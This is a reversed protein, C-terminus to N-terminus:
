HRRALDSLRAALRPGWAELSYDDRARHYAAVSMRDWLDDDDLLKQISSTWAGPTDAHLGEVGDRVVAANTTTPTVVCPIGHSMYLVAKLGCKGEALAHDRDVPYIGVRTRALVDDEAAQSWRFVEPQVGDPAQPTAGVVLVQPPPTVDAVAPLVRELFPATSHSGVWGVSRQEAAKPRERPVPVVTPVVHVHRNHQSCWRALVESGAWVEDARRCLREYKGGTARLWQPVRGATPSAFSEWVADDVDWVVRRGRAALLELVPPGLPLAERQIVLVKANKLVPIVLPLRLLALLLVLARRAQGRGFWASLDAPRFFSWCCLSLHEEALHPTYQVMRLRTSAVVDPHVALLAIKTTSTVRRSSRGADPGRGASSLRYLVASAYTKKRIGPGRHRRARRRYPPARLKQRSDGQRRM